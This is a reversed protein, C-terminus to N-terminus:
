LYDTGSKELINEEKTDNENNKNKICYKFFVVTLILLIPIGLLLLILIWFLKHSPWAEKAWPDFNEASKALGILNYTQNQETPSQDFSIYYNQTWINGM